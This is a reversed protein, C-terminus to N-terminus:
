AMYSVQWSESILACVRPSLLDGDEPVIINDELIVGHEIKKVLIHQICRESSALDACVRCESDSPNWTGKQKQYAEEKWNKRKSRLDRSLALIQELEPCLEWGSWDSPILRCISEFM